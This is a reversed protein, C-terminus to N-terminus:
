REWSDRLKGIAENVADPTSGWMGKGIGAFSLLDGHAVREKRPTIVIAGNVYDVNLRDETELKAARVVSAPLTIQHKPRMRIVPM